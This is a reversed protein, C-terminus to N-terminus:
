SPSRGQADVTVLGSAVSQVIAEQLATVACAVARAREAERRTRRLQEALDTALAGLGRLRRRPRLADSWRGPGPALM